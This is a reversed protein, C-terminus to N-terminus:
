RGRPRPSRVTRPAGANKRRRPPPPEELFELLVSANSHEADRAAFLLTVPGSRGGRRLREVLAAHTRLESRYRQRFGAFRSRAHGYWTCLEPSPAIEKLWETLHLSERTKGRPWLRDVLFREGDASGTPDYVRQIRLPM